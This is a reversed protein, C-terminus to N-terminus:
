MANIKEDSLSRDCLSSGHTAFHQFSGGFEYNQYAKGGRAGMNGLLLIM